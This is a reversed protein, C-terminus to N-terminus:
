AGNHLTDRGFTMVVGLRTGVAGSELVQRHEGKSESAIRALEGVVGRALKVDAGAATINRLADIAKLQHEPGGRKLVQNLASIAGAEMIAKRNKPIFALNCLTTVSMLLTKGIGERLIRVVPKLAGDLVVQEETKGRSTSLLCLVKMCMLQRQGDRASVTQAVEVTAHALGQKVMALRNSELTSLNYLTHLVVLLQEQLETAILTMYQGRDTIRLLTLHNEAEKFRRLQDALVKGFGQEVLTKKYVEGGSLNRLIGYALVALSGFDAKWQM